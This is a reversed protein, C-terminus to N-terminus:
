HRCVNSIMAGQRVCNSDDRQRGSANYRVRSFLSLAVVIAHGRRRATLLAGARLSTEWVIQSARRRTSPYPSFATLPRSLAYRTIPLSLEDM